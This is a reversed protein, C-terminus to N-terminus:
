LIVEYTGLPAAQRLGHQTVSERFSNTTRLIILTLWEAQKFLM